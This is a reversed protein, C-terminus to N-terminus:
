DASEKTLSVVDEESLCFIDPMNVKAFFHETAPLFIAISSNSKESNKKNELLQLISMVENKDQPYLSLDHQVGKIEDEISIFNTATIRLGGKDKSVDCSAVIADKVNM